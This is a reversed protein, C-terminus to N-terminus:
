AMWFPKCTEISSRHLDLGIDKLARDSLSNLDNRSIARSLWNAIRHTQKNIAAMAGREPRFKMTAPYTAATQRFTVPLVFNHMERVSSRDTRGLYFIPPAAMSCVHRGGCMGTPLLIGVRLDGQIDRFYSISPHRPTPEHCRGRRSQSARLRQALM